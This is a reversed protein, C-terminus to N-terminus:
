PIPRLRADSPLHEPQITAYYAPALPHEDGVIALGLIAHMVNAPVEVRKSMLITEVAFNDDDMLPVSVKYAALGREIGYMITFDGVHITGNLEMSLIHNHEM